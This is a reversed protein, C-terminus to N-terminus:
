RQRSLVPSLPMVVLPWGFTMVNKVYHITTKPLVSARQTLDFEGILITQM